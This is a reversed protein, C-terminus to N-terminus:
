RRKAKIKPSSSKRDENADESQERREAEKRLTASDEAADDPHAEIPIHQHNTHVLGDNTVTGESIQLGKGITGALSAADRNDSTAAKAVSTMGAGRAVARLRRNHKDRYFQNREEAMHEPMWMLVMSRYHGARGIPGAEPRVLSAKDDLVWGEDQRREVDAKNIFRPRFGLRPKVRLKDPRQWHTQTTMTPTEM